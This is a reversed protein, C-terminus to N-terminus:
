NESKPLRIRGTFLSSLAKSCIIIPWPYSKNTLRQASPRWIDLSLISFIASPRTHVPSIALFIPNTSSNPPIPLASSIAACFASKFPYVM